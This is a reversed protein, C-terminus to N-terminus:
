CCGVGRPQCGISARARQAAYFAEMRAGPWPLPFSPCCFGGSSNETRMSVDPARLAHLEPHHVNPSTM